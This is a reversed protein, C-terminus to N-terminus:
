HGSTGIDGKKRLEEPEEFDDDDDNAVVFEAPRVEETKEERKWTGRSLEHLRKQPDASRCERGVERSSLRGSTERRLHLIQPDIFDQTSEVPAM